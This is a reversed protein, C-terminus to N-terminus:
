TGLIWALLLAYILPFTWRSRRDISLARAHSSELLRSVVLSQVVTIALLGFSLIMIKDLVTLYAVRPLDQAIVFQYAVITLVGTASVKSRSAFSEETMWFVSWSLVVIIVLPLMLKWLYFGSKRDIQVDLVFQSVPNDSRIVNVDGVRHAIGRIRWEALVLDEDFGIRGEDPVLQVANADWSFSEVVLPLVQSDFPFRRLDYDATLLVSLNIDNQVSGDAHIRLVHDLYRPESVENVPHGGPYWMSSLRSRAAAGVFADMDRGREAPDFALRPDCWQARVFGRFRFDDHIADIERLDLLHVGIAVLTPGNQNPPRSPISEGGGADGYDVASCSALSDATSAPATGACLLLAALCLLGLGWPGCSGWRRTTTRDIPQPEM